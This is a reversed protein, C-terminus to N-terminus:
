SNVEEVYFVTDYEYDIRKVIQHKISKIFAHTVNQEFHGNLRIVNIGKKVDGFELTTKGPSLPSYNCPIPGLVRETNEYKSTKPNYTGKTEIAFTVRDSYRM